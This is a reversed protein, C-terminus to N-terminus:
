SPKTPGLLGLILREVAQQKTQRRVRELEEEHAAKMQLLDEEAVNRSPGTGAEAGDGARTGNAAALGQLHRWIDLRDKCAFAMEQTMVARALIKEETVVWLFPISGAQRERSSELYLSIELQEASWGNRPLVWFHSRYALNVAAAHAFTFYETQRSVKGRADLYEIEFAPWDREPDPNAALELREDRNLGADPDYTLSSADRGAHAADLLTRAETGANKAATVLAASPRSATALKRFGQLLRQPQALNGQFVFAERHALALQGLGLKNEVLDVPQDDGDLCETAVFKLPRGSRMATSFAGMDPGLLRDSSEVVVIQPLLGLEEARLRKWDIPESPAETQVPTDQRALETKAGRVARIVEIL